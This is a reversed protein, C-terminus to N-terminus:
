KVMEYTWPQRMARALYGDAEKDDVFHEAEPNWTLKRGLRIAIVGLHCVSASRHGIEVDCVPAQGTRVCQFFNGLHDNSEYLAVQKAGLPERLIEPRSADIQGRTVYIWGEPGEFLVGHYREGPGLKRAEAGFINNATTSVCRHRVGNAYTYEVVYEAPATFGGEVQTVTTKGEVTRPGSRDLGLGWLAIDNHHAGWDTM